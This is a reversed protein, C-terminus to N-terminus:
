AVNSPELELGMEQVVDSIAHLLARSDSPFLRGIHGIRFCDANSVKGPYIVFGKDNLRTYFDEFQFNPDSPYRFSTILYGQLHRPLYEEFGLANMGELLCDHNARYRAARGAVGGEARLESLAQNFALITQVPPTFRFQGNGELGKWQALLDLSLTRAFGATAELAARRCIAFSFGPVGEICKNASSVLYDIECARFDFEVAGFASMSDVFYTKSHKRVLRGVEEIPNLIGSTTECHVIAVDTIAADNQLAQEVAAPDIPQDEPARVTAIPIRHVEAMKAIRDGYSGNICVLLKGQPPVVSSVVAEVGFTGSGQMLVTEYGDKQSVGALDLLEARVHKVMAVFEGDRSGLDRAMALKVTQSTTLPGPTFLPKDASRPLAPRNM